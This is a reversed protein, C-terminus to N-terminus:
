ASGEGEEVESEGRIYDSIETRVSPPIHDIMSEINKVDFILPNGNLNFNEWGRLGIKISALESSGTKLMEKRKGGVGEVSYLQDRLNSLEKVTLFKVRFITREKEDLKQDSKCTFDHIDNPDIAKPMEDESEYLNTSVRATLWLIAKFIHGRRQSLRVSLSGLASVLVLTAYQEIIWPLWFIAVIINLFLSGPIFNGQCLNVYKITSSSIQRGIPNPKNARLSQPSM